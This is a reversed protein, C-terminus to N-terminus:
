EDGLDIDFGARAEVISRAQAEIEAIKAAAAAAIREATAGRKRGIAEATARVWDRWTAAAKRAEAPKMGAKVMLGAVLTRAETEVLDARRGGGGSRQSWTGAYLTEVVSMCATRVAEAFEEDSRFDSRKLAAARDAVKQRLGHEALRAIIDGTLRSTDVAITGDIKPLPVDIVDGVPVERM